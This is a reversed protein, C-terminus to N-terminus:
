KLWCSTGVRDMPLSMIKVTHHALNLTQKPRPLLHRNGGNMHVSGLGIDSKRISEAGEPQQSDNEKMLSVGSPLSCKCSNLKSSRGFLMTFGGKIRVPNIILRSAKLNRLVFAIYEKLVATCITRMNANLNKSLEYFKARSSDYENINKTAEM